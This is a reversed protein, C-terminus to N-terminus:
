MTETPPSSSEPVSHNDIIEKVRQTSPKDLYIYENGVTAVACGIMKEDDNAEASMVRFLGVRDLNLTTEVGSTNKVKLFLM